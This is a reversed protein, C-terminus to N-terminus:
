SFNGAMEIFKRPLIAKIHSNKFDELNRTVIYDVTAERACKEQLCDELDAFDTEEIAECVKEHSAAIVHLVCCLKKLM